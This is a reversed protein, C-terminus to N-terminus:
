TLKPRSRCSSCSFAASTWRPKCRCHPGASFPPKRLRDCGRLRPGTKCRITNGIRPCGAHSGELQVTCDQNRPSRLLNKGEKRVRPVQIQQGRRPQVKLDEIGPRNGDLCARFDIVAEAEPAKGQAPPAADRGPIGRTEKDVLLDPTGIAAPIWWCRKWGTSPPVSTSSRTRYATQPPRSASRHSTAGSGTGSRDAIPPVPQSLTEPSRPFGRALLSAAGHPRRMRPKSSGRTIARPPQIAARRRRRRPSHRAAAWGEVWAPNHPLSIRRNTTAPVTRALAAKLGLSERGRLTYGGAKPFPKGRQLDRRNHSM